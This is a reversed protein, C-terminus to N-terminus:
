MKPVQEQQTRAEAIELFRAVSGNLQRLEDRIERLEAAKTAEVKLEERLTMQISEIASIVRSPVSM